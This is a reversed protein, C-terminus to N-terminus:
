QKKKLLEFGKGRKGSSDQINIEKVEFWEEIDIAKPSKSYNLNEYIEKLQNKIDVKSIRDGESFKSYITEGLEEPIYNKDFVDNLKTINYGAAKLKEKGLSLYGKIKSDMQNEVVERARETLNSECLWKLKDYITTLGRLELLAIKIEMATEPDAQGFTQDIANFVTFRDAYDIQQIDFARKEAIMVLHNLVPIKDNGAHANIAVYDDLYNRERARDELAIAAAHKNRSDQYNELLEKSLKEKEKIREEFMEKTMKVRGKKIPKYYFEASNKWPNTELRQRGLIQPLDLSIDVALCDVNADSLIFSRANDSYFDAGLYVTRTCITFMKRPENKLPVKGIFWEKGLAKQIKKLNEPTNSCLINVEEPKLNNKKILTIINKVSNVYIMAEKSEIRKVEKTDPDIESYTEFNGSKYEEIIRKLPAYISDIIRVKLNPRMVRTPDLSEWDLEYYPLDAFEPIQKMYGSIMPTASLYCVKEIGQLANVFEMETTSKFRSDIFISQFEDVVIQFNDFLGLYSIIEKLVRFSDYTVLIKYPKKQSDMLTFYTKLERKLKEIFTEDEMKQQEALEKLFDELTIGKEIAEKKAKEEETEIPEIKSLGIEKDIEPDIDKSNNYVRYVDDIHQEWKNLILMNRPSCLIVNDRNTLCWETFGCGPIQKDMIHPFRPFKYYFEEWDSIYRIGPPISIKMVNEEKRNEM